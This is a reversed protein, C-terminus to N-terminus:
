CSQFIVYLQRDASFYLCSSCSLGVWKKPFIHKGKQFYEWQGLLQEFPAIIEYIAPIAMREGM